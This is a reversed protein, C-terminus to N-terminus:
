GNMYFFAVIFHNNLEVATKAELKGQPATLPSLFSSPRRIAHLRLSPGPSYPRGAQAPLRM